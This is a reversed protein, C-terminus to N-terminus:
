KKVTAYWDNLEKTAADGGSSKYKALFSDLNALSDAGAIYKITQDNILTNLTQNTKSFEPLYPAMGLPSSVKATQKVNLEEFGAFLRPDKRVRAQWYIPYNQEDIGTLFNVAQNREDNFLPLIPTYANDKFTYHKGEEGIAILKFTDKELKANMWKVTDEPNKSSKPIYSIRDFGGGPSGLGVAGDKGKLAPIYAYKANPNNKTLADAITPIDYWGVSLVGAKGSTFKEKANGDKNVVFEKDLLGQKYLGEMYAAYDKYNPDLPRSVIKGDKVNWTNPLGFAGSINEVFPASAVATLPITDGTGAPDKEKFAQLVATFEDLTAPMKLNLKELWDVRILLNLGINDLALTPIAYIKGDVKAAEWTEASISAKINPGYQDILPGLDVLAGKKAYDSYLAKMDSGGGTTVVDYAEGSAILLNLKDQPKDQPLMDYKVKYGTKDEIDKALPYTNYDEKQWVSLVKLEPKPKETAAPSASAASPASSNATQSQGSSCAAVSAALVASLTLATLRQASKKQLM